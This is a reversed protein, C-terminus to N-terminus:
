PRPDRAPEDTGHRRLRRHRPQGQRYCAARELDDRGAWDPGSLPAGRGWGGFSVTIAPYRIEDLPTASLNNGNAEMSFDDLFELTALAVRFPVAVAIVTPPGPSSVPTSRVTGM